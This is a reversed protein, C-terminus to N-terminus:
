NPGVGKLATRDLRSGDFPEDDTSSLSTLLNSVVAVATRRDLWLSLPGVSLVLGGSGPCVDVQVDTPGEEENPKWSM